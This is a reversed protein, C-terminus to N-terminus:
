GRARELLSVLYRIRATLEDRAIRFARLRARKDGEVASPDAISWHIREPAGAFIPCSERANDCVTVVFDFTQGALEDIPKSRQAGIDIGQEGMAQIALPHVRTAVTGASRVEVRGATLHRLIGEAMQSRASNHTCLFLVRPRRGTSKTAEPRAGAREEALGPHLTEGAAFFLGRLRELDLSYYVDRGDAASRRESVLAQGRLQRLHYSVLNTPEGVEEVLEQVRRDSHALTSLLRWRLEHGILKLFAPSDASTATTM